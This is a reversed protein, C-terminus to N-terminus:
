PTVVTIAGRFQTVYLKGNDRGFGTAFRLSSPNGLGTALVCAAGTKPDVKLVEGSGNAAVYLNGKADRTMDDLGKVMLPGSTYPPAHVGPELTAAGASLSAIVKPESPDAISFRVIRSAQDFTTAADLYKGTPDLVLGNPSYVSGWAAWSTPQKRPIRVVVDQFDNSVYLNGARDFQLGNSMDWGEAYVTYKLPNTGTVRWVASAGARRVSDEAANGFGIYLARDPGVALGGLHVGDAVVTENGAADYRRLKSDGTVFLNGKGDFLLNELIGKGTVFQRTPHAGPCADQTVPGALAGTSPLLLAPVAVLLALLRPRM